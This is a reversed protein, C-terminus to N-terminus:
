GAGGGGAADPRRAPLLHWLVPLLVGAAIAYAFDEIPALGIRVGSINAPDYAVLGVGIMVNDFVATTVLLVALTIGIARGHAHRETRLGIVALVAVVALFVANLAWYTM